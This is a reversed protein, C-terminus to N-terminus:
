SKTSDYVLGKKGGEAPDGVQESFPLSRTGRKEPSPINTDINENYM